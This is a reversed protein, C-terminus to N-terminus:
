QADGGPRTHAVRLQQPSHTYGSHEGYESGISPLTNNTCYAEHGEDLVIDRGWRSHRGTLLLTQFKLTQVRVSWCRSVGAL